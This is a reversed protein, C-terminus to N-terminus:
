NQHFFHWQIRLAIGQSNQSSTKERLIQPCKICCHVTGKSVMKHELYSPIVMVNAYIWIMLILLIGRFGSFWKYGLKPKLLNICKTLAIMAVSFWEAFSIIYDLAGVLICLNQGWHWGRSFTQLAYLPM